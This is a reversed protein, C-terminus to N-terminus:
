SNSVSGSGSQSPLFEAAREAKIKRVLSAFDLKPENQVGFKESIEDTIHMLLLNGGLGFVSLIAKQFEEPQDAIKKPDMYFLLAAAASKGLSKTLADTAVSSMADGINKEQM